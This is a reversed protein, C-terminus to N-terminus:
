LKCVVVVVVLRDEDGNESRVAAVAVYTSLRMM